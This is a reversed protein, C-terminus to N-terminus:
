RSRKLKYAMKREVKDTVEDVGVYVNSIPAPITISEIARVIRNALNDIQQDTIGESSRASLKDIMAALPAVSKETLPIAYEPGAEGFGQLVTPRDFLGGKANWQIGFSPVGPFGLFKAAEALWGSSDWSVTIRPMKIEPWQFKFNFLGRVFNVGENFKTKITEWTGSLFSCVSDWNQYLAVGVAILGGVAAVALGVPSTLAAVVGTFVGTVATAGTTAITYTGFAVAAGVIGAALPVFIEQHEGIFSIGDIMLQLGDAMIGNMMTAAPEMVEGLEALKQNYREESEVAEILSKNTEQYEHNIQSLGSQSLWNLAVQQRDASTSASEMKENFEDLNGCCREILEAFQGTASGTAITEQLSDALSEIKLTDPFKIIAGSLSDLAQEMETETFGIAMLNSLGEISSDMEGTLAVLNNMRDKMGDFNLNANKTNQELRSLDSRYERTEKALGILDKGLGVVSDAIGKILDASLNAKLVDSFTSTSESAEEFNDGLNEVAESQSDIRSVTTKLENQINQQETKARLLASTLNKYEKSNEGLEDGAKKLAEETAKVKESSLELQKSLIAQRDALLDADDSNGKLQASNLKLESTLLKMDSNMEKIGKSFEQNYVSFEIEAQTKKQAM